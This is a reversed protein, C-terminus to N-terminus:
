TVVKYHGNKNKTILKLDMLKILSRHAWASAANKTQKGVTIGIKTPSLYVKQGRMHDIVEQDKQKIHIKGKFDPDDYIGMINIRGLAKNVSLYGFKNRAIINHDTPELNSNYSLITHTIIDAYFLCEELSEKDSQAVVKGNLKNAAARLYKLYTIVLRKNKGKPTTINGVLGRIIFDSTNPKLTRAVTACETYSTSKRIKPELKDYVMTKVAVWNSLTSPTIGIEEAFQTLTYKDRYKSGGWTIECVELAKEAVYIRDTKRQHIIYKCDTVNEIWKLQFSSFDKKNM